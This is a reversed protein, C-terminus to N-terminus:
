INCLAVTTLAPAHFSFSRSLSRRTPRGLTGLLRLPSPARRNQAPFPLPRQRPKTFLAAAGRGLVATMQKRPGSVRPSPLPGLVATKELCGPHWPDGTLLRRFLGCSFKHPRGLLAPTSSSCRNVALREAYAAFAWREAWPRGRIGLPPPDGITPSSLSVRLGEACLLIQIRAAANCSLLRRSQGDCPVGMLM